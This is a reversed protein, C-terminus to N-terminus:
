SVEVNYVKMHCLLTVETLKTFTHILVMFICTYILKNPGNGVNCRSIKILVSNWKSDMANPQHM